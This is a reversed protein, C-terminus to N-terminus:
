HYRVVEFRYMTLQQQDEPIGAKEKTYNIQEEVLNVGELNPLLLGSREGDTIILGYKQPDLQRVDEIKEAPALVDVSYELNDLEDHEIPFFRDDETSASIANQIIEDAINETTPKTTGICGRLRGNQKISVFCGAQREMEPLLTTLEIMRGERVYTEVAMRALRVFDSENQRILRMRESNSKRMEALVSVTSQDTSQFTAITYGVGFPGEYSVTEAAVRVRDFAGLLLSLSGLTDEAAKEVFGFDLDYLSMWDSSSIAEQLLQDFAQGEESFGAPADASLAHSNDGSAIIVAKRGTAEIAQRICMGAQYIVGHPVFGPSLLVAKGKYGAQQLYHLPIIAGYDLEKRIRFKKKMPEQLLFLPVNEKSGYEAIKHALERDNEIVYSRSVGFDSLSGVLQEGDMITIADEFMPGHPSILAVVDPQQLVLEQCVKQMALITRQVLKTDEKGIEPIILPPHPMLAGMRISGNM